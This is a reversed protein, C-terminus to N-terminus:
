RIVFELRYDEYKLGADDYGGQYVADRPSIQFIYLM